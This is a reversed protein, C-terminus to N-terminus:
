CTRDLGSWCPGAGFTGSEIELDRAFGASLMDRKNLGMQQFGVRDKAGGQSVERKGQHVVRPHETKVLLIEVDGAGGVHERELEVMVRRAADGRALHDDANGLGPPLGAFPARGRLFFKQEVGEVAHQVQAPEVISGAPPVSCHMAFLVLDQRAQADARDKRDVRRAAAMM